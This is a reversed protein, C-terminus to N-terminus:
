EGAGIMRPALLSVDIAQRDFHAIDDSGGELFHADRRLALESM